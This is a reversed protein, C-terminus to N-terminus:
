HAKPYGLVPEAGSQAGASWELGDRKFDMSVYVDLGAVVMDLIVSHGFGRSQPPVVSGVGAERWRTSFGAGGGPPLSWCLHV